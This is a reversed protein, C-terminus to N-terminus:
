LPISALIEAVPPKGKKAYIVIGEKDIVFVARPALAGKVGYQRAVVKGDDVLLPFQYQKKEAFKRHSAQTAPNIGFVVANKKGFAAYDDRIECLQITCVPTNDGPYFILVVNKQGRFSRLSVTDGRDSVLSFDPATDGATKMM